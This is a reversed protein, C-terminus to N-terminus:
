PLIGLSRIKRWTYETAMVQLLYSIKDTKPVWFGWDEDLKNEQTKHLAATAYSKAIKLYIL